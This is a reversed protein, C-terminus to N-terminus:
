KKLGAAVAAADLKKVSGDQLLVWGGATAADKEHAVVRTGGKAPDMAVGYVVVIEGASVGTFAQIHNPEFEALDSQKQPPKKREAQFDKYLIALDKLKEEVSVTEPKGTRPSDGCGASALCFAILTARIPCM